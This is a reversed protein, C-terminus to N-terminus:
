EGGGGGGDDSFGGGDSAGFSDGSGFGRRSTHVIWLAFRPGFILTSVVALAVYIGLGRDHDVFSTPAGPL